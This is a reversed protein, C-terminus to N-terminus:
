RLLELALLYTLKPPVANAIMECLKTRPLDEDFEFFDPLFQIRAAEHPTLTRKRKPHVFRGQGMCTFGSTITQAPRNWYMRGYVSTYTHQKLRHCIPRQSDPLDYLGLRFLHEIRKLNRATTSGPMDFTRAPEVDLLDDIFFSVPPAPRRHVALWSSINVERDLSAVMVHRRRRQAVGLQSVEVVAHDLHYGCVRLHAETREVVRGHDHLVAPVNEVIIHAPRVVEAFRAIRDYLRNRPDNRRSHNNLDSHGQCPPGAIALDVSGIGHVLAVETVSPRAGLPSDLLCEAGTRVTNAGPFNRGYTRLAHESNDVALAVQFGRGVARCAEWVGLSMAGCGSFLDAVRVPDGVSECGPRIKSRLFAVDALAGLQSSSFSGSRPVDLLPFTTSHTSGGRLTVVRIVCAGDPSLEYRDSFTAAGPAALSGTRGAAKVGLIHSSTTQPGPTASAM